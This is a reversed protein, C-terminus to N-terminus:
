WKIAAKAKDHAKQAADLAAESGKGRLWARTARDLEKKTQAYDGHSTAPEPKTAPRSKTASEQAGHEGRESILSKLQELHEPRYDPHNQAGYTWNNEHHVTRYNPNGGPIPNHYEIGISQPRSESSISRRPLPSAWRKSSLTLPRALGPWPITM